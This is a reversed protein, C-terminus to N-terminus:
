PFVLKSAARHTVFMHSSFLAHRPFWVHPLRSHRSQSGDNTNHPDFHIGCDDHPSYVHAAISSRTRNATTYMHQICRDALPERVDADDLMRIVITSTTPSTSSARVCNTSVGDTTVVDSVHTGSTNRVTECPNEFM